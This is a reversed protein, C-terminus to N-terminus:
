AQTQAAMIFCRLQAIAAHLLYDTENSQLLEDIQQLPVREFTSLEEYPTGDGEAELIEYDFLMLAFLTMRASTAKMYPIRSPTLPILEYTSRELDIGLEERVERIAAEEPSEGEDIGGSVVTYYAEHDDPDRLMYPPCVERRVFLETTNIDIPIVQVSDSEYLAEYPADTPSVVSIHDGAWLVSFDKM